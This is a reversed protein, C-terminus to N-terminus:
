LNGRELIDGIDELLHAKNDHADLVHCGFALFFLWKGRNVRTRQWFDCGEVNGSEGDYDFM